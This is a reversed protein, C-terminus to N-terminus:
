LVYKCGRDIMEDIFEESGIIDTNKSTYCASFGFALKKNKLIDMANIVASYTGKGRRSDTQEEFGEVSIIPIFNKVRLMEAAFAQDILTANTFAAFMCDHHKECLKIIDKKRILPEGGSYFIFIFAL